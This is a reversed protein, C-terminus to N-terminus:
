SDKRRRVAGSIMWQVLTAALHVAMQAEDTRQPRFNPGGAHRAVHGKWLTEIMAVMPAVSGDNPGEIALEWRHGADRLHALVKGLTEQRGHPLVLPVAAAEVARVAEDYAKAPDTDRGYAAVWAARLHDGPAATMTQEAATTTTADVRRQLCRERWSVTFASGADALIEELHELSSASSGEGWVYDPIWAALSGELSPVPGTVDLQYRLALDLHIATDAADLLRDPHKARLVDVIQQPDSGDLPVRLRLAVRQTLGPKCSLYGVVWAALPRLLHDPVGEFLVRVVRARLGGVAGAGVNPLV